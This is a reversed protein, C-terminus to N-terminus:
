KRFEKPTKGFKNKFSTSFYNPSSFGTSYAIESISLKSTELLEKSKELRFDQIYESISIGLIAKVKRYLQVRSINMKEALDEVSFNSNDLNKDINKKIEVIFVQEIEGFKNNAEVNNLKNSYFYRLRERNYLLTEISHELVKISFPKSIFMDAGSDLGKIYSDQDGLATLIITPIHSTRLDKKLIECIEFGSKGPLSVDSLVLDPVHELALDIADPGYSTYVKYRRSLRDILFNNLDINDEVVLISYKETTIEEIYNQNVTQLELYDIQVKKIPFTDIESIVEKPFHEKGKLLTITFVTGNNIDIEITGGHLEIFQKSLNLGIGSSYQYNNSGQFFPKFVKDLDTSPIGIGSDSVKIVVSDGECNIDLKIEGKRPTFKLANSLLNFYVKDLLSRDIYVETETCNSNFIYNINKRVAESSFDNFIQKSFENINTPVVNINFKKDEIKRFDLLQNILRLLRNSNKYINPIHDGLNLKRNINEEYLTEATSMILTLPTKFEHSLGTFFNTRAENVERIEKAIQQIKNRQIIIKENNIRLLRNKNKIVLISYISYVALAIILVLFVLLIKVLNNQSNYTKQLQNINTQLNNIDNIKQNIRIFQSELIAANRFDVVTSELINNIPHTKKAVLDVALRLAEDGGTPYLITAILVGKKVLDLGGNPGPLGDVGIIKLQKELGLDQAVEWAGYALRDNHAFVFDVDKIENLAKRFSEKISSAEWDSDIIKVIELNPTAKIVDKFGISREYAPSSGELGRIEIIKTPKNTKSAIFNAANIGVQYNDAGLYATYTQKDTKRDVVLVPIGNDIAKQIVPTVPTSQWPSVIIVDVKKDIFQQIQKSQLESNSNADVIELHVNEFLDAQIQMSKNMEQRWLDNSVCQSFGITIKKDQNVNKCSFFTVIVLLFYYFRVQFLM